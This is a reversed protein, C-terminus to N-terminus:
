TYGIRMLQILKVHITNGYPLDSDLDVTVDFLTFQEFTHIREEKMM